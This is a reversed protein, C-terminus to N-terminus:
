GVSKEPPTPLYEGYINSMSRFINYPAQVYIDRAKDLLDRVEKRRTNNEHPCAKITKVMGTESTYEELLSESIDMLPRILHIRGEFMSLKYPLSSISGHFLMNLFLTEIADERHHGLALKNCELDRTLDFLEKRRHWSCVFCPTKDPNQELDPDIERIYLPVNLQECFNRLYNSDLEYGATTVLIHAASIKFSFPLAQRREALTKLLIMSDKGGSLGVLIHDGEAIMEHDRLTVGVKRCIKRFLKDETNVTGKSM